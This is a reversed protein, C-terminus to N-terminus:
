GSPVRAARRVLPAHRSRGQLDGVDKAGMTRRPALGVGTM